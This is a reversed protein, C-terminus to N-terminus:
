LFIVEAHSLSISKLIVERTYIKYTSMNVLLTLYIYLHANTHWLCSKVLSILTVSLCLINHKWSYFGHLRTESAPISQCVALLPYSEWIWSLLHIIRKQLVNFLHVYWTFLFGSLSQIFHFSRSCRKLFYGSESM